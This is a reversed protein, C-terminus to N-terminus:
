TLLRFVTHKAEIAIRELINNTYFNAKVICDFHNGCM